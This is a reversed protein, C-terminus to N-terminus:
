ATTVHRVSVLRFLHFLLSENKQGEHTQGRGTWDRLLFLEKSLDLHKMYELDRFTGKIRM